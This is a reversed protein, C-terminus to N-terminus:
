NGAGSGVTTKTSTIPNKFHIDDYFREEVETGDSDEQRIRIETSGSYSSTDLEIIEWTNFNVSPDRVEINGNLLIDFNTASATSITYVPIYVKDIGTLDYNRYFLAGGSNGYDGSVLRISFSDKLSQTDSREAIGRGFITELTWDGSDAEFDGIVQKNENVAKRDGNEDLIITEDDFSASLDNPKKGQLTQSDNVSGDGDTDIDEGKYRNANSSNGSAM